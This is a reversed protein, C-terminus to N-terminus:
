NLEYCAVWPFHPVKRFTRTAPVLTPQGGEKGLQQHQCCSQPLPHDAPGQRVQNQFHIPLRSTKSWSRFCTISGPVPTSSVWRFSASITSIIWVACTKLIKDFCSRSSNNLKFRRGLADVLRHHVQRHVDHLLLVLLQPRHQGLQLIAVLDGDEPSFFIYFIFINAALLQGMELKLQVSFFELFITFM